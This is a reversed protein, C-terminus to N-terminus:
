LALTNQTTSGSAGKVTVPVAAFLLWPALGHTQLNQADQLMVGWSIAPPRLGLGLFSLTTESIDIKALMDVEFCQSGDFHKMSLECLIHHTVKQTFCLDNSLQCM